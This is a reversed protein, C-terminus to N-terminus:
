EADKEILQIIEKQYGAVKLLEQRANELEVQLKAFETITNKSEGGARTQNTLNNEAAEIRKQSQYIGNGSENIWNTLMVKTESEELLDVQEDLLFNIAVAEAQLQKTKGLLIRAAIEYSLLRYGNEKREFKASIEFLQGLTPVSLSHLATIHSDLWEVEADVSSGLRTRDVTIIEPSAALRKRLLLFHTKMTQSRQVLIQQTMKIAEEQAVLTKFQLHKDRASTFQPYLNRYQEYQYEFDYLENQASIKPVTLWTYFIFATCFLLFIRIKQSLFVRCYQTKNQIM